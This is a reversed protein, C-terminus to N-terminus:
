KNSKFIRATEGGWQWVYLWSNAINVVTIAPFQTPLMSKKSLFDGNELSM